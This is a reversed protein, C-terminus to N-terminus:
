DFIPNHYQRCSMPIAFFIYGCQQVFRYLVTRTRWERNWQGGSAAKPEILRRVEGHYCIQVASQRLESASSFEQCCACRVHLYKKAGCQVVSTMTNERSRFLSEAAAMNGDVIPSTPQPPSTATLDISM